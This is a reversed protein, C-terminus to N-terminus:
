WLAARGIAKLVAEVPIQEICMPPRCRMRPRTSAWPYMFCPACTKGPPQVVLHRYGFPCVRDPDAPAFLTVPPTGVAAALHALGSDSGVYLRSAELIAAAIGLSGRLRLVRPPRACHRAIEDGVGEEDPGELIVTHCRKTQELRLILEAYCPPPWRKATSLVTRASGPHIALPRLRDPLGAAALMARAAARDRDSVAFRPSSARPAEIGFRELLRLNQEVDHIGRLAAVRQAPVFGLATVHGVPYRHLLRVPAGSALALAMYQWRNSPFPVLFVDPRRQRVRLVGALMGLHGGSALHVEDVTGSRRFVEAMPETRAIITIHAAPRARRLERVMPEAMLANGIGAVIPIVVRVDPAALRAVM